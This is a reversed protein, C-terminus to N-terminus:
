LRGTVYFRLRRADFRTMVFCGCHEFERNCETRVNIGRMNLRSPRRM